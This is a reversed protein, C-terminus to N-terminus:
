DVGHSRLKVIQEAALHEYGADKLKRLYEAEVGHDRLRVLDEGSFRYGLENAARVFEPPVGHDRLKVIEGVELDEYGSEHLARLMSRKKDQHSQMRRLIDDLTRVAELV